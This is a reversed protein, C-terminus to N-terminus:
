GSMSLIQLSYNAHYILIGTIAKLITNIKTKKKKEREHLQKFYSHWQRLTWFGDGDTKGVVGGAPAHGLQIDVSLDVGDDPAGQRQCLWLLCSM